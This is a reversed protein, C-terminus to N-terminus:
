TNQVILINNDITNIYSPLTLLLFNLNHYKIKWEAVKVNFLQIENHKIDEIIYYGNKSLKHISNEFFCVNASFEHLGDDIIIDFTKQLESQNWMSQIIERKTQDCYFTHIRDTNFLICEDIDAGYIQSNVFFERWGYLSAGPVGDTGMNSQLTINNTGLGLEFINLEKNKLDNFLYYYVITYNHYSKQIDKSGKDSKYRGMIECLETHIEFNFPINLINDM